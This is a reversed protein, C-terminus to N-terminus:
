NINNFTSVMQMYDSQSIVMVDLNRKFQHKRYALAETKSYFLKSQFEQTSQDRSLVMYKFEAHEM